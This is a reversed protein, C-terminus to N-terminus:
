GRRQQDRRRGQRRGRHERADPRGSPQRGELSGPGQRDRAGTQRSRHCRHTGARGRSRGAGASRQAVAKQNRSRRGRQRLATRRPLEFDRRPDTREAAAQHENPGLQRRQVGSPQGLDRLDRHDRAGHHGLDSRPGHDPSRPDGTPLPRRGRLAPVPRASDSRASFGGSRGRRGGPWRGRHPISRRGHGSM